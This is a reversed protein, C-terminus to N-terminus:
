EPCPDSIATWTFAVSRVLSVHDLLAQDLEHTRSGFPYAYTTVDFGDAALADISPLAEDRLYAALGHDEVYEPARQHRMSHAEIAHGLRALEHLSAIQEASLLDHYAIFFTIHAGYRAYLDTGALWHDIFADDFSLAVGAGQPAGRALEAYTFYPLNAADIAALVAELKDWAVTEGPDHAYLELVEGRERARDLGTQISALDNQASTDIDIACHVKRGDWNYFAGGTDATDLHCGVLLALLM